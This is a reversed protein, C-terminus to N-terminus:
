STMYSRRLVRVHSGLERLIFGLSRLREHHARVSQEMRQEVHLLTQDRLVHWDKGGRSPVTQKGEWTSKGEGRGRRQWDWISAWEEQALEACVRGGGGWVCVPFLTSLLPGSSEPSLLRQSGRGEKVQWRDWWRMGRSQIM